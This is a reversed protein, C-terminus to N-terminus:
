KWMDTREKELQQYNRKSFEIVQQFVLQKQVPVRKVISELVEQHKLSATKLKDFFAQNPQKLFHFLVQPILTYNNEAKLATEQALDIEGKDVLMAAALIGKDTLRLLLEIKSQPDSILALSIKDRLVKLKYFKNDPLMGPFALDYKVFTPTPIIPAPAIGQAQVNSAGFIVFLVLLLLFKRM